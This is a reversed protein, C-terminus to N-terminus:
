QTTLALLYNRANSDARMTARLIFKYNIEKEPFTVMNTTSERTLERLNNNLCFPGGEEHNSWQKNMIQENM